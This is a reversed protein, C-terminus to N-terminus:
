NAPEGQPWLVWESHFQYPLIGRAEVRFSLAPVKEGYTPSVWGWIPSAQGPGYLVEGARVVWVHSLLGRPLTIRLTVWGHPSLVGLECGEQFRNLRWEWDPLLWHLWSTVPELRRKGFWSSTPLLEDEVLWRGERFATLARQHIVGLRRYGDHCAVLREWLGHPEREHTVLRAQAWDLWLFRGARKMQDEGCITLTNHVETRDLANDWPPSANYLYTGADQALNIGRWWLDLHLQDAHGPRSTFRAARLYAWSQHEPLRLVHPSESSAALALNFGPRDPRTRSTKGREHPCLWLAMEDWIGDPLAEEGLFALAAAQLLPRYDGYACLTLPFILAGDNPGLNPVGGSYPDLLALLWRTAAALSRQTEVPARTGWDPTIARVWLALQLMLRQYNTSHQIYAGDASIQSQIGQLFWRWGLRQWGAAKPHQPLALGATYLGAAESLLHNNNQAKAYSITPPIRRAHMAVAWALREMREDTSHPSPAFLSALFVFAMLRLAVEQASVWHLGLGPPNAEVFEDFYRWFARTYREDRSVLYARGLSFAWGFRAPEWLYRVDKDSPQDAKTLDTWHKLPLPPTLHLSCAEGGFLRVQGNVVEDAEALLREIGESGLLRKLAESDPPQFLLRVSLAAFPAGKWKEGRTARKLYGSRLLLQYWAYFGVQRPGLQRLAKLAISISQLQSM